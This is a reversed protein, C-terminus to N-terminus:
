STDEIKEKRRRRFVNTSVRCRVPRVAPLPAIWNLLKGHNGSMHSRGVRMASINPTEVRKVSCTRTCSSNSRDPLVSLIFAVIKMRRLEELHRKVKRRLIRLYNRKNEVRKTTPFKTSSTTSTSNNEGIFRGGTLALNVRRLQNRLFSFIAACNDLLDLRVNPAIKMEGDKKLRVSRPTKNESSCLFMKGSKMANIKRKTKNLTDCHSLFLSSRVISSWGNTMEFEKTKIDKEKLFEKVRQSSFEGPHFLKCEITQNPLFREKVIDNDDKLNIEKKKLKRIKENKANENVEEQTSLFSENGDHSEIFPEKPASDTKQFYCGHSSRRVPESLLPTVVMQLEEGQQLSVIPSCNGEKMGVEHQDKRQDKKKEESDVEKKVVGHNNEEGKLLIGVSDKGEGKDRRRKHLCEKEYKRQYILIYKKIHNILQMKRELYKKIMAENKNRQLFLECTDERSYSESEDRGKPKDRRGSAPTKGITSEAKRDELARKARRIFQVFERGPHEGANTGTTRRVTHIERIRKVGNLIKKKLKSIAKKYRVIHCMEDVPDIQDLLDVPETKGHIAISKKESKRKSKKKGNKRRVTKAEKTGDDEVDVHDDGEDNERGVYKDAVYKEAVYKEAVYKEAVYKEAIYKEAISINANVPSGEGKDSRLEEEKPTDMEPPIFRSIKKKVKVVEGHVGTCHHTTEETDGGRHDDEGSIVARSIKRREERDYSSVSYIVNYSSSSSSFSSSSSSSSSSLSPSTSSSSVTLILSNELSHDIEVHSTSAHRNQEDPSLHEKKEEECPKEWKEKRSRHPGRGINGTSCNIRHAGVLNPRGVLARGRQLKFGAGRPFGERTRDTTRETTRDTTRDTTKKMWETSHVTKTMSPNGGRRFLNCSSKKGHVASPVLDIASNNKFYDEQKKKKGKSIQVSRSSNNNQLTHLINKKHKRIKENSGALRQTDLEKKHVHLCGGHQRPTDKTRLPILPGLKKLSDEGSKKVKLPDEEKPMEKLEESLEGKPGEPSIKKSVLKTIRQQSRLWQRAMRHNGRAASLKQSSVHSRGQLAIKEGRQMTVKEGGNICFSHYRFINEKKISDHLTGEKSFSARGLCQLLHLKDSESIFSNKKGGRPKVENQRNQEIPQTSGNQENGGNELQHIEEQCNGSFVVNTSNERKLREEYKKIFDLLNKNGDLNIFLSEEM